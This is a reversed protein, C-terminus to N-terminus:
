CHASTCQEPLEHKAGQSVVSDSVELVTAILNLALRQLRSDQGAM